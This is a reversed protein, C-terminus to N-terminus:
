VAQVDAAARPMEEALAAALAGLAARSDDSRRAASQLDVLKRLALRHDAALRHVLAPRARMSELLWLIWHDAPDQIAFAVVMPFVQPQAALRDPDLLARGAFAAQVRAAGSFMHTAYDDRTSLREAEAMFADVVVAVVQPRETTDFAGTIAAAVDTAM